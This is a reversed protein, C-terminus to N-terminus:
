KSKRRGLRLHSKGLTRTSLSALLSLEGALVAGGVIEAFINPKIELPSAEFSSPLLPKSKTQLQSLREM